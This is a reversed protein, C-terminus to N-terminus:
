RILYLINAFIGNGVFSSFWQSFDIFFNGTVMLKIESPNLAVECKYIKMYDEGHLTELRGNFIIQITSDTLTHEYSGDTKFPVGSYSFDFKYEGSVDLRPTRLDITIKMNYGNISTQVNTITSLTLGFAKLNRSNIVGVIGLGSYNITVDDKTIPELPPFDFKNSKDRM